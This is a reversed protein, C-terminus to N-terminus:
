LIDKVPHAGHRGPMVNIQVIDAHLIEAALQVDFLMQLEILAQTQFIGM